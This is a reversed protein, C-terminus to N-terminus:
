VVSKRDTLNLKAFLFHDMGGQGFGHAHAHMPPPPPADEATQSKAIASGLLVALTAILLRFGISKM